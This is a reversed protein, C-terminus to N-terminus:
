ENQKRKIKYKSIYNRMSHGSVGYEVALRESSWGDEYKRRIDEYDYKGRKSAKNIGHQLLFVNMKSQSVHYKECLDRLHMNEDVYLRRVEEPSATVQNATNTRRINHQKIAIWVLREPVNLEKAMDPVNMLLDAYMHRLKELSLKRDVLAQQRNEEQMQQRRKNLPRELIDKKMKRINEEERIKRIAEREERDKKRKHKAWDRMMEPRYQRVFADGFERASFFPLVLKEM